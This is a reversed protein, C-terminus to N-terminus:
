GHDEKHNGVRSTSISRNCGVGTQMSPSNYNTEARSRSEARTLNACCVLVTEFSKRRLYVSVGFRVLLSFRETKKVTYEKTM